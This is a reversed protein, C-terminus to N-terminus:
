ITTCPSTGGRGPDEEGPREATQEDGRRLSALSRRLAKRTDPDVTAGLSEAASLGALRGEEMAISAEEVGGADGAVYIGRHTTRMDANHDPRWGGHPASFVLQCGAMSALRTAPRLGAAICITDVQLRRETGPLPEWRENVRAITAAEVQGGGAAQVITHSTLIPVGVRRLKASHVRYGGIRPAAEIVAAVEAGAQLLQYAVILGVNGSGVMLIRRGPLVRHVNAMTQAAGAGMVGPLTWGPFALAREEAGTALILRRARVRESRMKLPDGAGELGGRLIEIQGGPTVTHVSSDLWLEVGAEEAAAALAAAIDIGRRAAMQAGSGFFRHTQKILQGGATLNADVVLTGCGARCCETAATLGAPGAGIIVVDETQM